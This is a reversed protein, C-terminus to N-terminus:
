VGHAQRRVLRWTRVGRHSPFAGQSLSNKRGVLALVSCSVCCSSLSDRDVSPLERMELLRPETASCTRPMSLCPNSGWCWSLSSSSSSSSFCNLSQFVEWGGEGGWLNGPVGWCRQETFPSGTALCAQTQSGPSGQGGAWVQLLPMLSVGTGNMFCPSPASQIGPM